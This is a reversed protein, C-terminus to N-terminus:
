IYRAAASGVDADGCEGVGQLLQVSLHFPEGRRKAEGDVGCLAQPEILSQFKAAQSRAVRGDAEVHISVGQRWLRRAQMDGRDFTYDGVLHAEFGAQRSGGHADLGVALATVDLARMCDDGGALVGGLSDLEEVLERSLGM